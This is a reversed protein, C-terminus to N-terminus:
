AAKENAQARGEKTPPKPDGKLGCSAATFLALALFACALFKM